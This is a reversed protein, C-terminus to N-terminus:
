NDSPVVYGKRTFIFATIVSWGCWNMLLFIFLPRISSFWHDVSTTILVVSVDAAEASVVKGSCNFKFMSEM